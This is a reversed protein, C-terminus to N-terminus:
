TEDEAAMVTPASRQKPSRKIAIRYPQLSGTATPPLRRYGCAIGGAAEDIVLKQVRKREVRLYDVLGHVAEIFSNMAKFPGFTDTFLRLSRVSSEPQIAGDTEQSRWSSTETGNSLQSHSGTRKRSLWEGGGERTQEM